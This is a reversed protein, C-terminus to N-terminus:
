EYDRVAIGVAHLPLEDKTREYFEITLLKGIFLHKNDFYHKRSEHNGQPVVSFTLSNIDNKCVFIGLGPAKLTDVVDLIEVEVSDRRKLKLMNHTRKGIEYFADSNRLIVGEYGQEIFKDCNYNVAKDTNVMHNKVRVTNVLSEPIMHRLTILREKQTTFTNVIDFVYFKVKQTFLSPTRVASVIESLITDPIYLEGDLPGRAFLEPYQKLEETIHPLNYVTGKKSTLIVEDNHWIAFCRVGNIKPQSVCPFTCITVKEKGAKYYPQAKMPAPVDFGADSKLMRNSHKNSLVDSILTVKQLNDLPVCQVNTLEKYGLTSLEIYGERTVKKEFLARAEKEAQEEASTENAKGVNKPKCTTTKTQLKGGLVGFTVKYSNGVVEVDWQQFGKGSAAYLRPFKM